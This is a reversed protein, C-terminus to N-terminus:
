FFNLKVSMFFVDVCQRGEFYIPFSRVMVSHQLFLSSNENPRESVEQWNAFSIRLFQGKKGILKPSFFNQHNSLYGYTSNGLKLICQAYSFNSTGIVCPIMYPFPNWM